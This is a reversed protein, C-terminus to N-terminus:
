ALWGRSHFNWWRAKPCVFLWQYIPRGYKEDYGLLDTKEVRMENSCKICFPAKPDPSPQVSMLPYM